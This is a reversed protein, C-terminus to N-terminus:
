RAAGQCLDSVVSRVLEAVSVGRHLAILRLKNHDQPSLGFTVKTWSSPRRKLKPKGRPVPPKSAAEAMIEKMAVSEKPKKATRCTRCLGGCYANRLGCEQCLGSAARRLM